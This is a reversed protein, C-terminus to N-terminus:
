KNLAACIRAFVEDIAGVGDINLLVGKETYYDILPQTQETYVKLRAGM